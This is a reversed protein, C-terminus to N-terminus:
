EFAVGEPHSLSVVSRMDKLLAELFAGTILNYGRGDDEEGPDPFAGDPWQTAQPMRVKEPDTKGDLYGDKDQWNATAANGGRHATCLVNGPDVILLGDDVIGHVVVFHGTSTPAGIGIIVPGAELMSRITAMWGESPRKSVYDAGPDPPMIANGGEEKRPIEGTKLYHAAVAYIKRVHIHGDETLEVKGAPKALPWFAEAMRLPYMEQEILADPKTPFSIQGATCDEAFWRLIMAATSANCGNPAWKAKGENGAIVKNGWRSDWQPLLRLPPDLYIDDGDITALNDM